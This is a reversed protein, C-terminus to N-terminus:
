LDCSVLLVVLVFCIVVEWISRRPPITHALAFYYRGVSLSFEAAFCFDMDAFCSGCNGRKQRSYYAVSGLAFAYAFSLLIVCLSVLRLLVLGVFM